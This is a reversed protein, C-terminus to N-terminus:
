GNEKPNFKEMWAKVIEPSGHCNHPAENYIFGCIDFLRHRNISDAQGFAEMLNNELVATLFGGPEIGQEIYLKMGERMHEPLSSYNIKDM